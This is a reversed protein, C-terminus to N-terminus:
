RRVHALCATFVAPVGQSRRLVQYSRSTAHASLMIYLLAFVFFVTGLGPVTSMGEDNRM